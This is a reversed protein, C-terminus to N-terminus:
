WPINVHAAIEDSSMEDMTKGNIVLEDAKLSPSDSKNKEERKQKAKFRRDSREQNAWAAHNLLIIQPLTLRMAEKFSLPYSQMIGDIM